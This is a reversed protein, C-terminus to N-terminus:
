LEYHSSESIQEAAEDLVFGIAVEGLGDAGVAAEGLLLLVGFEDGVGQVDAVSMLLFHAQYTRIDMDLLM